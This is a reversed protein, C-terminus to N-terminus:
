GELVIGVARKAFRAFQGQEIWSARAARNRESDIFEVAAGRRLLGLRKRPNWGTVCVAHGSRFISPEWRRVDGPILGVTNFHWPEVAVVAAYRLRTWRLVDSVDLRCWSVPARYTERMIRCWADAAAEVLTGRWRNLDDDIGDIEVALDFVQEPNLRTLKNCVGANVMAYATCAPARIDFQTGATRGPYNSFGAWPGELDRMLEVLAAPITVQHLANM